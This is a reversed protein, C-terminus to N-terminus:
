PIASPTSPSTPTASPATPSPLTPTESAEPLPTTPVESPQTPSPSASQVLNKAKYFTKLSDTDGVFRWHWPEYSVGQPNGRPFSLEFSYYPANKELWKFAATNEFSPSLNTAPTNGDGIDIAYGTHHESYGPPASVEARKTTVQGREAKVDFFLRQQDTIARFGSIPVLIVGNRAAAASMAKYKEAASTRLKIQGNATIPQLESAPAEQYPLHGLLNDVPKTDSSPQTPNDSTTPEVTPKPKPASGSLAIGTAIAGVGILSVVLLVPKIRSPRKIEPTDRLAEPIDDDPTVSFNAPKGPFEGNNM